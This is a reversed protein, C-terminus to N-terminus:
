IYRITSPDVAEGRSRAAFTQEIWQIIADREGTGLTDLFERARDLGAERDRALGSVFLLWAAYRDTETEVALAPWVIIALQFPHYLPDSGGMRRLVVRRVDEQLACYAAPAALHARSLADSTRSFFLSAYPECSPDTTTLAIGDHVTNPLRASLRAMFARLPAGLVRRRWRALGEVMDHKGQPREARGTPRHQGVRRTM